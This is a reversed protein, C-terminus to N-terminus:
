IKSLEGNTYSKKAKNYLFDFADPRLNNKKMIAKIKKALKKSQKGNM